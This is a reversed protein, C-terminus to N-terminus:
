AVLGGGAMQANYRIDNWCFRIHYRFIVVHQFWFTIHPALLPHARFIILNRQLTSIM